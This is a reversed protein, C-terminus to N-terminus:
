DSAGHFATLILLLLCVISQAPIMSSSVCQLEWPQGTFAKLNNKSFYPPKLRVNKIFKCLYYLKPFILSVKNNGTKKGYFPVGVDDGSIQM